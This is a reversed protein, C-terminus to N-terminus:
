GGSGVKRGDRKGGLKGKGRVWMECGKGRVDRLM